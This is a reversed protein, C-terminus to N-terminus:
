AGSCRKDSVPLVLRILSEDISIGLASGPPPLDTRPPLEVSFSNMRNPQHPQDEWSAAGPLELDARLRDGEFVRRRLLARRGTAGSDLSIADKPIFLLPNQPAYDQGPPVSLPGLPSDVRLAGPAGGAGEGIVRCPLVPGAGFFRAGFETKPALFLAQAPGTELIRGRFMLAIRTAIVAAEERDHTVFVCPLASRAHIEPFEERLQRRLPADLSSFPEDLLLAGPSAALARAIAARQREGGSLTDIRRDEYGALRVLGLNERAIRRREPGKVGRIFPGYAVNKGVSLHPFLALDQFVMSINRKWPPLDTVPLGGIFLEGGDPRVLGAILNLATTKGCGSPGVLVLTEGDAVTFDLTVCFDGYRKQLGRAEIGM